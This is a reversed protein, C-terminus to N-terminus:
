AQEDNSQDTEADYPSYTGLLRDLKIDLDLRLAFAFLSIIFAAFIADIVRVIVHLLRLVACM